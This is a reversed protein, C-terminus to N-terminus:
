AATECREALAPQWRALKNSLRDVSIPKSLYDDFGAARWREEDGQMAHATIAIIVTRRGDEAAEIARIDATAEFGNKEPMSVDMLVLAPRQNKWKEVAIAGNEALEYAIGLEALCQSFVIQNVANDEAVLVPVPGSEPPRSLPAPATAAAPQSAADQAIEPAPEALSPVIRAELQSRKRRIIEEATTRLDRGRTPKSLAAEIAVGELTDLKDAQDVSSLLLIPTDALAPDSRIERAVQAGNLGPMQFDLIVLDLRIGMGRAAHSLFDLALEGSEVAVCDMGWSRIQETLIMRNVEIDDVVLVRADAIRSDDVTEHKVEGDVDLEIEFAFVSGEGLMSEVSTRGGMLEVLRSAIALGLGTGEHKRTSSGDVQSFKDFISALKEEPIGIGTDSVSVAIAARAPAGGALPDVQRWAVDIMVTGTETFKVANGMLNTVVQRLRSPDGVLRAPLDPRIRVILEIDKEAARASMLAAVDEVTDALSFPRNDLMMQRAEIKSYDLIDNIIELLANGSKLIVDTFTKQRTDLETRMLLETMGLVGNMPTRIEHSMTALFESKARDAAKAEVLAADAERTKRKLHAVMRRIVLDIPLFVGLGLVVLAGFTILLFRELTAGSSESLDALYHRIRGQVHINTPEVFSAYLSQLKRARWYLDSRSRIDENAARDAMLLHNAFPASRDMYRSTRLVDERLYDPVLPWSQRLKALETAAKEQRYALGNLSSIIEPDVGRSARYARKEALTMGLTAYDRLDATEAHSEALRDALEAIHRLAGDTMALQRSFDGVLQLQHNQTRQAVSFYGCLVAIATLAAVYGIRFLALQHQTKLRIRM